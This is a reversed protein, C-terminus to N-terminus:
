VHARGIQGIMEHRAYGLVSEVRESLFSYRWGADTEWVYEGSAELVDRFRQERQALAERAMRQESVDRLVTQLVLRGRELYSVGATEIVIESGDLRCLRREEFPTKGPGAQLYDTRERHRERHEPHILDEPRMGLLQKPSSAGLMVAAASNVYEIIGNSQVVVGNPALEVLTRYREEADHSAQEARKRADIDTITGSMRRVRGDSGQEGARGTALLWKWDGSATRVRFEVHRSKADGKLTRMFVSHVAGRDNSHIRELIEGSRATQEVPEEGLLKKWGHSLFVTDIGVDCDWVALNGGETALELREKAEALARQARRKETIDQGVGRYGLFRGAADYRPKGTIRHARREGADSRSIVFDFFPMQADLEELRELHEVLARPEVAVGPVEWLRRGHAMEAGFLAAVAPGGSIWRIRHQADTEWFWDASLSTLHRFREESVRLAQTGRRDRRRASFWVGLLVLGGAILPLAEVLPSWAM